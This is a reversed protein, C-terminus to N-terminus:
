RHQEAAIAKLDKPVDRRFCGWRLVAKGRIQVLGSKWGFWPGFHTIKIWPQKRQYNRAEEITRFHDPGLVSEAFEAAKRIHAAPVGNLLNDDVSIYLLGTPDHKEVVIRSGHGWVSGDLSFTVRGESWTVWYGIASLKVRCQGTTLKEAVAQSM